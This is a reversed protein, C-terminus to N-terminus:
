EWMDDLNPLANGYYIPEQITYGRRAKLTLNAQKLARKRAKIQDKTAVWKLEELRQLIKHEFEMIEGNLTSFPNRMEKEVELAELYVEDTLPIGTQKFFEQEQLYTELKDDKAFVLFVLAKLYRLASDVRRTEAKLKAYMIQSIPESNNIYSMMRWAHLMKTREKSGEELMFPLISHVAYHNEYSLNVINWSCDKYQPFISRPLIHHKEGERNYPKSIYRLYAETHINDLFPQHLELAEALNKPSM